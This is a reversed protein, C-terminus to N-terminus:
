SKQQICELSWYTGVYGKTVHVGLARKVYSTTSPLELFEEIHSKTLQAAGM